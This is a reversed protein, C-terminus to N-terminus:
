RGYQGDKPLNSVWDREDFGVVAGSTVKERLAPITQDHPHVDKEEESRCRLALLEVGCRDLWRRGGADGVCDSPNGIRRFTEMERRASSQLGGTGREFVQDHDCIVNAQTPDFSPRGPGGDISVVNGCLHSFALAVRCSEGTRGTFFPGFAYTEPRARQERAPEVEREVLLRAFDRHVFEMNVPVTGFRIGQLFALVM